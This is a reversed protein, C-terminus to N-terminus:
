LREKQIEKWARDVSARLGKDSSREETVRVVIQEIKEILETEVDSVLDAKMRDLHAQTEAMLTEREQKAQKLVEKAQDEAARRTEELELRMHKLVEESEEKRKNMEEEFDRKLREAEELNEKINNRREDLVKLLPRYLFKILILALLGFNVLYLVLGWFDIGLNALGEM